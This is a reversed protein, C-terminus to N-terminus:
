KHLLEKREFVGVMRREVLFFVDDDDDDDDSHMINSRIDSSHM